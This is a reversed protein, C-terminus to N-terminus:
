RPKLNRKQLRLPLTLSARGRRERITKELQVLGLKVEENTQNPLLVDRLSEDIDNGQVVLNWYTELAHIEACRWERSLPRITQERM